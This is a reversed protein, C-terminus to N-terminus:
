IDLAQGLMELPASPTSGSPEHENRSGEPDLGDETVNFIMKREGLFSEASFM